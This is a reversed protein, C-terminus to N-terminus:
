FRLGRVAAPALFVALLLTAVRLEPLVEVIQVREAEDIRLQRALADDSLRRNDLDGLNGHSRERFLELRGQGSSRQPILSLSRCVNKDPAATHPEPIPAVLPSGM